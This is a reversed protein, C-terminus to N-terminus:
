GETDLARRALELIGERSGASAYFRATHCFMADPSAPPRPWSPAAAPGGVGGAPRPPQRVRRARAAGGAHGLRRVEPVHRVAGRPRQTVVTERWPMNRDLEIVRPDAAREIADRSSSAARARLGRRRADRARPDADGARRGRRVARGGRRPHAREDWAPEHAAIVGSVTMPRIDDVLSQASRRAPTTPTSARSSASTSRRPRRRAARWRRATARALRARLERLPHRQRARGRRGEPPPRLRRDRPRLPRRRRRARRGRRARAADRTRVVDLPGHVLGLVAVAFVDDAHFNGPHTAVRMARCPLVPRVSTSSEPNQPSVSGILVEHVGGTQWRRDPAGERREEHRQRRVDDQEGGRAPSPAGCSM